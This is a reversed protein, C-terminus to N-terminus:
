EGKEDKNVKVNLRKGILVMAALIVWAIWFLSGSISVIHAIILCSWFAITLEINNINM